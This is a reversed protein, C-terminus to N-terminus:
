GRWAAAEAHARAGPSTTAIERYLEARDLLEGLAVLFLSAVDWRAPATWLLPPLALAALRLARLPLPARRGQARSATPASRRHRWAYLGAKLAALAAYPPSAQLLAAAWLPGGLLTDASHLPRASPARVPDYVRDVLFLALVGLVAAGLALAGALSGGSGPVRLIALPPAGQAIWLGAVALFAGFAAVERSLRSGRWNAVARWARARRGLHLTSVALAAVAGTGFAPLGPAPGGFAGALVWGALAAAASTFLWLPIEARLTFGSGPPRGASPGFAALVEPPLTWTSEPPTAGRRLPTFRIRPRAATAPFGPIREDGALPGYGLASTPCAEVCAPVGLAALRHACLTCKAMVGCEQDFHPADYPCVWVCYRCGVCRAEDVVVAGTGADRRMAITPCQTVCPAEECHNCALSLHFSPVGPRREPNFPVIQRWSTGWGLGNETSCALTCAACGTCRNADFLFGAATAVGPARRSDAATGAGPTATM